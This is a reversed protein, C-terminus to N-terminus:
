RMRRCTCSASNMACGLFINDATITSTLYRSFDLEASSFYFPTEAALGTVKNREPVQVLPRSLSAM